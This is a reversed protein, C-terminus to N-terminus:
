KEEDVERRSGGKKVRYEEGQGRRTQGEVITDDVNQEAGGGALM